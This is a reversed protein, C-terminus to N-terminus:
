LKRETERIGVVWFCDGDQLFPLAKAEYVSDVTIGHFSNPVSKHYDVGSPVLTTNRSWDIPAWKWLRQLPNAGVVVGLVPLNWGLDQLGYLIGCLSMGSGVTVVIRKIERPLNAVQKRTQDIAERCEMGFPIERYGTAKADEAARSKIVSNYGARHQIIEAGVDRASLL